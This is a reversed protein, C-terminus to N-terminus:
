TKGLFPNKIMAIWKKSTTFETFINIAGIFYIFKKDSSVMKAFLQQDSNNSNLYRNIESANQNFPNFNNEAINKNTQPPFIEPTEVLSGRHM